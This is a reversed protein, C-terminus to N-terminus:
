FVVHSASYQKLDEEDVQDEDEISKIKLLNKYLKKSVLFIM